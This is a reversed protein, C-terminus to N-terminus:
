PVFLLKRSLWIYICLPCERGVCLWSCFKLTGNPATEKNNTCQVYALLIHGPPFSMFTLELLLMACM